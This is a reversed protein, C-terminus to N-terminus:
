VPLRAYCYEICGFKLSYVLCFSHLEALDLPDNRVYTAAAVEALNYQHTLAKFHNM